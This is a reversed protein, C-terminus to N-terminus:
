AFMRSRLGVGVYRRRVKEREGLIEWKAYATTESTLCGNLVCDAIVASALRGEFYAGQLYGFYKRSTGEEAFLLRQSEPSPMDLDPLPTRIANQQVVTAGAGWNTFTRRFLPGFTWRPIVISTPYPILISMLAAIVEAETQLDARYAQESTRTVM